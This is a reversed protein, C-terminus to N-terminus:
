KHSKETAKKQLVHPFGKQELVVLNSLCQNTPLRKRFAQIFAKSLCTPSKIKFTQILPVVVLTQYCSKACCEQIYRKYYKQIDRFKLANCKQLM